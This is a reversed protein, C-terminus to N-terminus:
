IQRYEAPATSGKKSVKRDRWESGQRKKQVKITCNNKLIRTPEDVGRM